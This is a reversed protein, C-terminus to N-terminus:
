RLSLEGAEQKRRLAAWQRWWQEDRNGAVLGLRVRRAMQYVTESLTASGLVQVHSQLWRESATAEEYEKTYPPEGSALGTLGQPRRIQELYRATDVEVAMREDMSRMANMVGLLKSWQTPPVILSGDEQAQAMCGVIIVGRKNPQERDIRLVRGAAQITELVSTKPDACMVAHLSQIDIGERLIHVNSLVFASRSGPNRLRDFLITRETMPTRSSISAVDVLRLQEQRPLTQNVLATGVRSFTDAFQVARGVNSHYTVLSRLPMQAMAKACAIHNLVLEQASVTGEGEEYLRIAPNEDLVRQVQTDEVAICLVHYDCLNGDAIARKFTYQGVVPGYDADDMSYVHEYGSRTVFVKPTATCFLRRRVPFTPGLCVTFPSTRRGTARHAEDAILFDFDELLGTRKAALFQASSHYTGFVVGAPHQARWQVIRKHDTTVEIPRSLQRLQGVQQDGAVILQPGSYGLEQWARTVQGVLALSPALVIASKAQLREMILWYAVSTKGTGSAMVLQGRLAPKRRRFPKVAEQLIAEQYDYPAIAPPALSPAINM